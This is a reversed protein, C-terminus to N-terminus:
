DSLATRVPDPVTFESNLDITGEASLTFPVETEAVAATGNLTCSIRSISDKTLTIQVTGSTVDPTLDSIGPLLANKVADLGEGELRLTFVRATDASAVDFTSNLSLAYIIEPITGTKVLESLARDSTRRGDELCMATDNAYVVLDGKQVCRLPKGANYMRHYQLSDDVSLLETDASLRIQAGLTDCHNMEAWAMLLDLYDRTLVNQVEEGSAAAELVAEPVPKQTESPDKVDLTLSIDYATKDEDRFVGAAQFSLASLANDREDAELEVSKLDPLEDSYEAALIELLKQASDQSATLKYRKLSGDTEASVSTNEYVAAALNLLNSYDPVLDNVAFSAGNELYVVNDRYYLSLDGRRISTIGTEDQQILFIDETEKNGAKLRLSGEMVIPKQGSYERILQYARMSNAVGSRIFWVGAGLLAVAFISAAAAGIQLKRDVAIRSRIAEHTAKRSEKSRHMAIMFGIMIVVSALLAYIWWGPIATLVALEASRGPVTFVAYSGIQKVPIRQWDQDTRLFIQYTGTLTYPLLYRVEHSEAGDDPLRLRWQEIQDFALGRGPSKLYGIVAPWFSNRVMSFSEREQIEAAAKLVSSDDFKGKVYFVPRGSGRTEESSISTLDPCYVAEVIMDKHLNRLSGCDFYAYMGEKVPIAPYDKSGFSDGYEFPITKLVEGDAMFKLTFSRFREPVGPLDMLERYSVPEARGEYSAGNIGALQDSVFVNNSFTGTDTGSVAGFSQSATVIEAMSRNSDVVSAEGSLTGATGAGVIGGIKSVGSLRCKAWSERIAAATIGAIGGIESGSSSTVEGYNECALILGLDMKGAIGGADNRVISVTGDNVDNQLICKLEYQRKTSGDLESSVDDEPDATYEIGMTGAIGGANLAASVTGHNVCGSIKGLLVAEVDSDSTDQVLEEPHELTYLAQNLTGEMSTISSTIANADAVLSDAKGALEQRLIDAQDSLGSVSAILDTNASRIDIETLAELGNHTDDRIEGGRERIERIVERIDKGKLEEPTLAYLNEKIGEPDFAEILTDRDNSITDLSSRANGIYGGMSSIRSQLDTNAEEAHAQLNNLGYELANLEGSLASVTSASLNATVYPEAHGVIGGVDKRGYIAGHNTCGLIHGDSRGAIGGANYGFQPYGITGQNRCLTISGDSYGAIGGIDSRVLGSETSIFTRADRNLEFNFENVNLVTDDAETNVYASNECGSILGLSYGAIGGTVTQGYLMGSVTCNLIMGGSANIGAIGGTNRTGNVTGTYTCGQLIGYNIGAIGGVNQQIGHPAVTGSVTLDEIVGSDSVIQFLGAPSQESEILVGSVTHGNGNLTGAFVAGATFPKQHLSIDATLEFSKGRSWADYSCAALFNLFEHENSISVAPEAQVEEPEAAEEAQLPCVMAPVSGLMGTVLLLNLFLNRMKKMEKVEM